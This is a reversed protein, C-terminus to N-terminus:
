IQENSGQFPGAKNKCGTIFSANGVFLTRTRNMPISNAARSFASMDVPM